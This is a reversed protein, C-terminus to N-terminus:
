EKDIYIWGFVNKGAENKFRARKWKGEIDEVSGKEMDSTKLLIESNKCSDKYIVLENNSLRKKKKYKTWKSLKLENKRIIRELTDSVTEFLASDPRAAFSNLRIAYDTRLATCITDNAYTGNKYQYLILRDAMIDGVLNFIGKARPNEDECKKANEKLPQKGFILTSDIVTTTELVKKLNVFLEDKPDKIEFFGIGTFEGGSDVIAIVNSTGWPIIPIIDTPIYFVTIKELEKIKPETTTDTAIATEARGNIVTNCNKPEQKNCSAFFLLLLILIFRNDTVM